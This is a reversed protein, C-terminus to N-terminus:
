DTKLVRKVVVAHDKSILRLFFTGNAMECMDIETVVQGSLNSIMKNYVIKGDITVLEITLEAYDCNEIKLIFKGNNPNPYVSFELGSVPVQADTCVDVFISDLASSSCGLSDTYTYTIVNFGLSASLADFIGATVGPGSYVGGAPTVGSLAFAATTTQCVTDISESYTVIPPANLVVTVTDSSSCGNASTVDVYYTGSTSATLTSATSMDNWTYASGASFADLLVSTTCLTTDAGLDVLPNVSVTVVVTDSSSCGTVSDAVIVSYIGSSMVVLSNTLSSDSWLYFYSGAPGHLTTMGGECFVTDNGLAVVPNANAIIVVTDSSSCGTGTDTVLVSYIGSIMVTLSSVTSNDSWLYSFAGGPAMLTTMGGNCFTTDNGLGVVPNASEVVTIGIASSDSCGAPDTNIMNYVGASNSAYTNATAGVIISGNFYWQSTGVSTGTLFATDGVCINGNGSLIVFPLPNVTIAITGTDSCGNVDIGIVSYSTTSTPNDTISVGSIALPMWNYSIAGAGTLTVAEGACITSDIASATVTPPVNLVLSVTDSSTCGNSNTVNVYYTGSTSATLTAATSMDNWIYISGPNFANLVMSSTCLATDAGLNVIPADNVIVAVSGCPGLFACGGQGRCYYMTSASPSVTLTAGIGVFQGGCSGSYWYWDTGANLSGTATLVTSDGECLNNASSSIVPVSPNNCVSAACFYPFHESPNYFALGPNSGMELLSLTLSNGGRYVASDPLPWSTGSVDSSRTYKVYPQNSSNYIIAPNGNIIQMSPATGSTDIIVSTTWAVGNADNSRMYLVDFNATNFYAIAPRGNVFKLKASIHSSTTITIPTPWSSGTASTSRVYKITSGAEYAIAPNGNVVSLSPRNGYGNTADITVMSSPWTAGTSDLARKYKLNTTYYAIAPMGNIVALSLASTGSSVTVPTGWSAGLSDLARVYKLTGSGNNHYAIAPYGKVVCIECHWGADGISDVIIPTNWNSGFSDAAIVFRLDGELVDRYTIAPRGQLLCTSPFYGIDAAADFSAFYTWATGDVDNARVYKANGNTYDSYLVAPNGNIIAMCSEHGVNGGQDIIISANWATGSANTAQKYKLDSNTADCYSVAPKGNVIEMAAIDSVPGGDIIISAAWATGTTNNARKYCLDSNWDDFYCIAPNGNAIRLIPNQGVYQTGLVLPTNWSMGTPNSARVYKLDNNTQDYYAIAPNGAVNELSSYKGVDAASADVTVPTNWATGSADQALVYKLNGNTADYYSIAPYGNIMRLSPWGGVSGIADVVVPNGWVNGYMDLARVYKLNLNTADYYAIAPKGNVDLLDCFAGVSGTIDVPIPAQWSAGIADSARCYFLNAHTEDCYAIAPRGGIQQMSTTGDIIGGRGTLTEVLVPPYWTQAFLHTVNALYFVLAVIFSLSYRKM